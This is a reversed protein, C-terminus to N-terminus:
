ENDYTREELIKSYITTIKVENNNKSNNLLIFNTKNNKDIKKNLKKNLKNKIPNIKNKEDLKLNLIKKNIIFNNTKTIKFDNNENTESILGEEVLKLYYEMSNINLIFASNICIDLKKM